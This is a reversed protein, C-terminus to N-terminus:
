DELAGGDQCLCSGCTKDQHHATCKLGKCISCRPNAGAILPYCGCVRCHTILRVRVHCCSFLGDVTGQHTIRMPKVGANLGCMPCSIESWHENLPLLVLRVWKSVLAEGGVRALPLCFGRSAFRKVLTGLLTRVSKADNGRSREDIVKELLEQVIRGQYEPHKGYELALHAAEVSDEWEQLIEAPMVPRLVSLWHRMESLHADEVGLSIVPQRFYYWPIRGDCQKALHEDCEGLLSWTASTSSSRSFCIGILKSNSDSARVAIGRLGLPPGSRYFINSKVDYLVGDVEWDDAPLHSGQELAAINLDTQSSGTGFVSPAIETGFVIEAIRPQAGRTLFINCDKEGLYHRLNELTWPGAFHALARINSYRAALQIDAESLDEFAFTGTFNLREAGEWIARAAEVTSDTTGM